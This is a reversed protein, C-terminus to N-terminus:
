ECAQRGAESSDLGGFGNHVLVMFDGPLEAACSNEIHKM